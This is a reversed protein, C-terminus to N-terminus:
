LIVLMISIDVKVVVVVVVVYYYYYFCLLYMLSSNRVFQNSNKDKARLPSGASPVIAAATAYVILSM